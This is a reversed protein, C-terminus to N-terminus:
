RFVLLLTELRLFAVNKVGRFLPPERGAIQERICTHRLWPALPPMPLPRLDIRTSPYPLPLSENEAEPRILFRAERYVRHESPLRRHM